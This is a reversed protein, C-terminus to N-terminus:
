GDLISCSESQVFAVVPLITLMTAECLITFAVICHVICSACGFCVHRFFDIFLFDGDCLCNGGASVSKGHQEALALKAGMITTNALVNNTNVPWPCSPSSLPGGLISRDKM